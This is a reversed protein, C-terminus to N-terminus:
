MFSLAVKEYEDAYFDVNTVIESWEERLFSVQNTITPAGYTRGNLRSFALMLFPLVFKLDREANILYTTWSPGYFKECEFVLSWGSPLSFDASLDSEAICAGGLSLVGLNLEHFYPQYDIRM